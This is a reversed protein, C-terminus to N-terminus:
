ELPIEILMDNTEVFLSYGELELYRQLYDYDAYWEILTSRDLSFLYDELLYKNIEDEDLGTNIAYTERAEDYDIYTMLSTQDMNELIQTLLDDWSAYVYPPNKDLVQEIANESYWGYDILAAIALQEYDQMNELQEALDNLGFIDGTNRIGLTSEFDMISVDQRGGQSLINVLVDLDDNPLSIWKGILYGSNYADESGLWVSIPADSEYLNGLDELENEMEIATQKNM